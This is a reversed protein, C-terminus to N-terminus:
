CRACVSWCVKITSFEQDSWTALATRLTYGGRNPRGAEGIPKTIYGISSDIGVHGSTFHVRAKSSPDANPTRSPLKSEDDTDSLDSLDSLDSDYASIRTSFSACPSSIPGSSGSDSGRVESSSQRPRTAQGYPSSGSAQRPTRVPGTLNRPPIATSFIDIHNLTLPRNTPPLTDDASVTKLSTSSFVDVHNLTLPRNTPPLTEDASVTRLPSTPSFVDVHNLTLPRNMPPLNTEDPMKRPSASSFMDMRDLTLPRSM